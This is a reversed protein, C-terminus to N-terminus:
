MTAPPKPPEPAYPTASSYDSAMLDVLDDLPTQTVDMWRFLPEKRFWTIQRKALHHSALKFAEVYREHDSPTRATDLFELTQRYGIAQSATRNLRLGERDLRVVEDLFGAALMEECRQSLREYLLKRPMNLFWCRFDYLPSPPRAKWSFDSVRRGSLEIIELARIIKHKDNQTITAAYEPDVARLKDFLFDHGLRDMEEVLRKRVFPDSPPGSPPGYIISHIYFGTGGVIIPVNKRAIIEELVTKAQNHFDYVNFPETIECVDILHHPIRLRDEKSVKATGIDMGRYVQIADASIIEGGVMEALRLSLATKGIGTPGAIVIVRRGKLTFLELLQEQVSLAVQTSVKSLVDCSASVM